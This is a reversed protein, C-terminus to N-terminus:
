VQFLGIFDFVVLIIIANRNNTERYNPTHWDIEYKGPALEKSLLLAVWQGLIDHVSPHAHVITTFSPDKTCTFTPGTNDFRPLDILTRFLLGVQAIAIYNLHWHQNLPSSIPYQHEETAGTLIVVFFIATL